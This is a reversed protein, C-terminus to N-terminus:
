IESLIECGRRFQRRGAFDFMGNSHLRRLSFTVNNEDTAVYINAMGGRNIEEQLTFRGFKGLEEVIGGM